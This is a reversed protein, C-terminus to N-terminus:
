GESRSTAEFNYKVSQILDLILYLDEYRNNESCIKCREDVSEILDNLSYDWDYVKLVDSWHRFHTFQELGTLLEHLEMFVIAEIITM